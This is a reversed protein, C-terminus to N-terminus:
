GAHSARRARTSRQAALIATAAGGVLLGWTAPEPVATVTLDDM